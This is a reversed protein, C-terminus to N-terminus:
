QNKRRLLEAQILTTGPELRLLVHDEAGPITTLEPRIAEAVDPSPFQGVVAHYTTGTEGEETHLAVRYGENAAGVVVEKAAERDPSTFVSWTFTGELVDIPTEGYLGEEGRTRLANVEAEMGDTPLAEGDTPTGPDPEPMLESLADRLLRARQAFPTGPFDTEISAYLTELWPEEAVTAASDAAVSGAALATSDPLALPVEDLALTSDSVVVTSDSQVDALDGSDRTSDPAAGEGTGGLSDLAIPSDDAVPPAPTHLSDTAPVVPAAPTGSTPPAAPVALLWTDDPVDDPLASRAARAEEQGLFQGIGVRYTREVAAEGPVVRADYGRARYTQAARVAALSDAESAVVWTFSKERPVLMLDEVPSTAPAGATEQEPTLGVPQVVPPISDTLVLPRVALLAEENGAAWETYLAGAALRARAAAPTTPYQESLALMQSLAEAYEGEKWRAYADVYASEAMGVSDAAAVSEAPALELERRAQDAFRSAPYREIVETYIREAETMNGMARQAEALAFYARQAIPSEADEEIVRSYLVAASDPEGLSLFLVNGLEYRASARSARMRQETFPDRPVASIDIFDERTQIPTRIGPADALTEALDEQVEVGGGIAAARRWNPVLPRDGWRAQFAVFEEQVQVPNRYNLFGGAVNGDAGPQAGPDGTPERGTNFGGAGGRFGQESRRRALEREREEAERARQARIEEVAAAFAEEDLSGLYLLSDMDAIEGAVRAYNGFAESLTAVDTIAQATAQTELLDPQRIATAATDYHAAARVYNRLGNRYVEALRYHAPGRITGIRLSPDEEYLLRRLLDRADAPRGQAALVRARMLEIEARNEFNKDDRGMRRLDDLAREGEGSLSLTLAHSLQAAYALEYRPGYELVRGYAEAAEAPREQTEYVQGLLFTARAALEDDRLGDLGAQLSEVAEDWEGERVDIEALVLRMRNAWRERVAEQDLGERLALAADEYREAASLTRGLWFWAEDELRNEDLAITELFKQEAGTFNGQYFYAKGILLLADDVWKSEPHERLLDAGKEVAKTFGELQRDEPEAFLDLYRNRDVPREATLLQEEEQEFARKANYFTNYYATFNDYRQGLLRGCGSLGSALVLAALVVVSSRM